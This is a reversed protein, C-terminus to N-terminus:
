KAHRPHNARRRELDDVCYNLFARLCDTSCFYFEFQGTDVLDAIRITAFEGHGRPNNPTDNGHWSLTMFAADDQAMEYCEPATPRMAGANLIAM